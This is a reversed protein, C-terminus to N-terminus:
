IKNQHISCLRENAARIDHGPKFNRLANIKDRRAPDWNKEAFNTSEARAPPQFYRYVCTSRHPM